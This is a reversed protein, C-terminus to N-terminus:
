GVAIDLWLAGTTTAVDGVRLVVTTTASEIIAPGAVKQGPALDELNFVSAETWAGLYIRRTGTAPTEGRAEIQPEAPLSPLEGIAALRANVLVADQDPLSYTFLEDHRAHFRTAIEAMLDGRSFDLGDLPVDIEYIQEGYRMDASRRVAVPGDFAGALRRRGEQEMETYIQRVEAAKLSGTDGVHTRSVEYRLDTALMGWASLVAATRPVMVRKVELQRAIDTIHIGAAGGFSLLAFRRPDVGRRVSVLRIGEAMQTNIVRHVGEAAEAREVSLKTALRDLADNAAASDLTARGGLFNGPDLFGLVVSADTVAVETGGNGYCAPGPMAGASEPGVKLIGGSDVSAISGGGSAISAIDLSQLAIRQGAIGRATSLAAEGDVIMSIDTSTGGMDFPVLDKAGILASGHRSGAVGGAPGSLVTAAALRVAEEIPAVGGHSLIILVTGGYGATKLRADLNNLYKEVVPRVYANVVTTSVREYEKIEPFVESSLSISVGPMREELRARTANEHAPNKYSHLYCVAVSTVEAAKLTDIAADLSSGDLPTHVVGESRMRETVGLRLHRPVLTDQAALRMNYREDKLGERMELVDRHGKTTLLGVKAGKRELLSNTAVTTGHVIRGTESLLTAVDQGMDEALRAVADMVGISPDHPTSPAKTFTVAGDEAVAVIDTFTGGVDIGINLEM